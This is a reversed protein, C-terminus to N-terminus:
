TPKVLVEQYDKCYGRVPGGRPVDAMAPVSDAMARASNEMAPIFDAMARATNEMAPAFDAMARIFNEMAPISDATSFFLGFRSKEPVPREWLKPFPALGILNLVLLM